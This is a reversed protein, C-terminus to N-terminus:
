MFVRYLFEFCLTGFLMAVGFSGWLGVYYYVLRAGSTNAPQLPPWANFITVLFLLVLLYIGFRKLIQRM